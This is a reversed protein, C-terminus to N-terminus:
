GGGLEDTVVQKVHHRFLKQAVDTPHGNTSHGPRLVIDQVQIENRWSIKGKCGLWAHDREQVWVAATHVLM